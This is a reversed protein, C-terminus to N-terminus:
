ATAAPTPAPRTQPATEPHTTRAGGVNWMPTIDTRDPFAGKRRPFAADPGYWAPGGGAAGGHRVHRRADANTEQGGRPLAGADPAAAPSADTKRSAIQPDRGRTPPGHFADSTRSDTAAPRSMIAAQAWAAM